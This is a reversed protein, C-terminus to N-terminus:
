KDWQSHKNSESLYNEISFRKSFYSRDINIYNEKGSKIKKGLARNLLRHAKMVYAELPKSKPNKFLKIKFAHGFSHFNTLPIHRGLRLTAPWDIAKYTRSPKFKDVAIYGLNLPLKFGLENNLIFNQICASSEKLVSIYEEYSINSEPYKEIFLFYHKRNVFGERNQIKSKGSGL